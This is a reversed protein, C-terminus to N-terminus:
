TGNFMIGFILTYSYTTGLPPASLERNNIHQEVGSVAGQTINLEWVPLSASMGSNKGNPKVDSLADQTDVLAEIRATAEKELLSNGSKIVRVDILSSFVIQLYM